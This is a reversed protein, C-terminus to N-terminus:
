YDLASVKGDYRKVIFQDLGLDSLCLSLSVKVFLPRRPYSDVNQPTETPPNSPLIRQRFSVRLFCLPSMTKKAEHMKYNTNQDQFVFEHCRLLFARPLLPLLLVAGLM